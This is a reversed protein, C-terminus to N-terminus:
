WELEGKLLHEVNSCFYEAENVFARWLSQFFFLFIFVLCLNANGSTSVDVTETRSKYVDIFTLRIPIFYESWTGYERFCPDSTSLNWLRWGANVSLMRAENGPNYTDFPSTSVYEAYREIVLCNRCALLPARYTCV